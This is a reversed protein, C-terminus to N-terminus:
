RCHFPAYKTSYSMRKMASNSYMPDFDQILQITRGYKSM